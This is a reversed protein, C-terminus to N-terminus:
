ASRPEVAAPTPHDPRRELARVHREDANPERVAGAERAEVPQGRGSEDRHELGPECLTLQPVREEGRERDGADVPRELVPQTALGARPCTIAFVPVM